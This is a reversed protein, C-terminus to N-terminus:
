FPIEEEDEVGNVGEQGTGQGTIRALDAYSQPTFHEAYDVPSVELYDPNAGLGKLYSAFDEPAVREIFEFEDGVSEVKGGSRYVDWVTGTLGGHKQALRRLKQLVGPKDKGGRKAGFLKRGFQYTVGKNSTWGELTVERNAGYKVDGMDIVSFYGIFSSWLDADCIPCGRQDIGNKKLCIARDAANRTINYLSHEYFTFPDNDLFMVRKTVQAPMWFRRPGYEKKEGGGSEGDVSGVSDWGTNGWSM